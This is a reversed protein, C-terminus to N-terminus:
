GSFDVGGYGTCCTVFDATVLGEGLYVDTTAGYEGGGGGSGFSCVSFFISGATAAFGTFGGFRLCVGGELTNGRLERSSLDPAGIVPDFNILGEIDRGDFCAPEGCANEDYFTSVIRL